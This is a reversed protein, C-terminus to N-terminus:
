ALTHLISHIKISIETKAQHDLLAVFMRKPKQRNVIANLRISQQGTSVAFSQVEVRNLPFLMPNGTSLLANHAAVVGPHITVQRVNLKCSLVNIKYTTADTETRVLSFEPSSRTLRIKLPAGPPLYREQLLISLNLPGCLDITKSDEILAKRGAIDTAHAAAIDSPTLLAPITM